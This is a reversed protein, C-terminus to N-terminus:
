PAELIYTRAAVAQAKLAEPPFEAPMEAAVVGAVYDNLPIKIIEGTSHIYLRVLTKQEKIQVPSLVGSLYPWGLLLVIFILFLGILL